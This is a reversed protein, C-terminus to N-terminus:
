QEVCVCVCVNVSCKPGMKLVESCWAIVPEKESSFYPCLSLSLVHHSLFLHTSLFVCVSLEVTYSRGRLTEGCPAGFVTLSFMHLEDPMFGQVQVTGTFREGTMVRECRIVSISACHRRRVDRVCVQGKRACMYGMVCVSVLATHAM